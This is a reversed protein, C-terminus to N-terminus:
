LYELYRARKNEDLTKIKDKLRRKRNYIAEIKDEKLIVSITTNSFKLISFLYLLYDADKLCPLDEKFKTFLNDYAIDVKRELMTVKEGRVSLDEILRSVADATKKRVNKSDPNHIIINSFNDIIELNDTLTLKLIEHINENDRKTEILNESLADAFRIKEEMERSHKKKFYVIGSILSVIIFLCFIFVVIFILKSAKLESSVKYKEFKYYESLSTSNINRIGNKLIEDTISDVYIWEKLANKYDGKKEYINSLVTNKLPQSNDKISLVISEAENMRNNGCLCIGLLLSDRQNVYPSQSIKHFIEYAEDFREESILCLGNLRNAAEQLYPDEYKIASDAIQQCVESVRQMQGEEYLAIGLDNLAYNIYPQRGSKELFALEKKAYIVEDAPNYTLHYIDAIGRCSMGAWFDDGLDEALKLSKHFNVIASSYSEKLFQTRGLFYTAKLLHNKDKHREFYDVARGIMFEDTPNLHNKDLAQTYLLSFLAMDEPNSLITTDISEIVMLASDPHEEMITEALALRTDVKRQCGCGLCLAIVIGWIAIVNIRSSNFRCM